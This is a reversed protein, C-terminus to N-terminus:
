DAQKEAAAKQQASQFIARFPIHSRDMRGAEIKKFVIFPISFSVRPGQHNRVKHFRGPPMYLVDGPKLTFEMERTLYESQKTEDLNTVADELADSHAFVEWSTTGIVQMYIKHQPMDRHANYGTSEETPSVYLHLDARAGQFRDEVADIIAAVKPNIQSMNMMVFSHGAELLKRIEKKKLAAPAWRLNQDILPNRVGGAIIQLPSNTICGNNLTAEIEELSILDSFDRQGDGPMVFTEHAKVKAAFEAISLPKILAHFDM